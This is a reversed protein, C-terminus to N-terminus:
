GINVINDIIVPVQFYFYVLEVTIWLTMTADYTCLRKDVIRYAGFTDFPM